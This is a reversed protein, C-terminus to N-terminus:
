RLVGQPQNEIFNRAVIIAIVSSHNGSIKQVDSFHALPHEPFSNSFVIWLFQVFVFIGVRSCILFYSLGVLSNAM